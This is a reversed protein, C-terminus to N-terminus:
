VRLTFVIVFSGVILLLLALMVIATAPRMAPVITIGNPAVHRGAFRHDLEDRAM